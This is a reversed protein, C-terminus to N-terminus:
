PIKSRADILEIIDEELLNSNKLCDIAYEPISDTTENKISDEMNIFPSQIDVPSNKQSNKM